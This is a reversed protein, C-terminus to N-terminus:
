NNKGFKFPLFRVQENYLFIFRLQNEVTRWSKQKQKMVARKPCIHCFRHFKPVHRCGGYLENLTNILFNTNNKKDKKMAKYIELRERTCLSSGVRLCYNAGPMCVLSTM